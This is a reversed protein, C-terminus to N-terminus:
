LVHYIFICLTRQHRVEIVGPDTIWNALLGQIIPALQQLLVAVQFCLEVSNFLSVMGHFRGIYLVSCM